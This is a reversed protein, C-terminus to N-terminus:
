SHHAGHDFLKFILRMKKNKEFFFICFLPRTQPNFADFHSYTNSHLQYTDYSFLPEGLSIFM